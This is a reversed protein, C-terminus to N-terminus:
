CLAPTIWTASTGSGVLFPTKPDEEDEGRTEPATPQEVLAGASAEWVLASDGTATVAWRGSPYM